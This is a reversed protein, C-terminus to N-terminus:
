HNYEFDGSGIENMFKRKILFVFFFKIILCMNTHPNHLSPTVWRTPQIYIKFSNDLRRIYINKKFAHWLTMSM